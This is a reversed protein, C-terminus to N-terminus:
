VDLEHVTEIISNKYQFALFIFAKKTSFTGTFTQLLVRVGM